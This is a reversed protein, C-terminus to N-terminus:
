DNIYHVQEGILRGMSEDVEEIKKNPHSSVLRMAKRARIM